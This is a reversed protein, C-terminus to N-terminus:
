ISISILQAPDQHLCNFVNRFDLKLTLQGPELNHLFLHAEHVAAEAGWHFGVVWSILHWCPGMAKMIHNGAGKAAM